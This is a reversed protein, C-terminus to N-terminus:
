RWIRPYYALGLRAGLVGATGLKCPASSQVWPKTYALCVRQRGLGLQSGQEEGGGGPGRGLQSPSPGRDQQVGSLLPVPHLHNNGKHRTVSQHPPFVDNWPNWPETM